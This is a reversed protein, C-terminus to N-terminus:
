LALARLDYSRTGLGLEFGRDLWGLLSTEIAQLGADARHRNVMALAYRDLALPDRSAVVRRPLTDKMTGATGGQTIAVLADLITVRIRERVPSLAYLAPLSTNLDANFDAPNDIIGYINKMAGTIGSVEHRKLVPCNITVDTLETFIRSLRTTKGDVVPCYDNEYGPGSQDGGSAWTGMLTAGVAAETFGRDTVEFLTRDWVIIQGSGIGLDSKLSDVIAAVLAVSTPVLRNLGNIKIGIRMGPAYDPILARWPSAANSTLEALVQALMPPVRDAQIAIQPQEVVAQPDFAEVVLSSGAAPAVTGTPACSAREKRWQGGVDPFCAAISAGAAALATQTLFQRRSPSGVADTTSPAGVRQQRAGVLARARVASRRKRKKITYVEGRM